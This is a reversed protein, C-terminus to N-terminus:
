IQLDFVKAATDIQNIFDQGFEVEALDAKIRELEDGLGPGGTGAQVRALVVFGQALLRESDAAAKSAYEASLGFSEEARASKRSALQHAGLMWFSRAFRIPEDDSENVLRVGLKAADYGLAMDTPNPNIGPEDWGPWSFSAVNFAIARVKDYIEKSADPNISDAEAAAALGYQIGARGMAVVQSLDKDEWYLHGILDNFTSTVTFPDVEKSLFDIAAFTDVNRIYDVATAIM